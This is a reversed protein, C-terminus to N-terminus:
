KPIKVFQYDGAVMEYPTIGVPKPRESPKSIGTWRQSDIFENLESSYGQRKVYKKLETKAMEENETKFAKALNRFGDTRAIEEIYEQESRDYRCGDKRDLIADIVM